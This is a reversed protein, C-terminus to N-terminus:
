FKSYKVSHEREGANLGLGTPCLDTEENWDLASSSLLSLRSYLGNRPGTELANLLFGWKTTDRM